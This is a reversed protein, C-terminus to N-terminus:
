PLPCCAWQRIPTASMIFLSGGSGQIANGVDRMMWNLLNCAGIWWLFAVDPAMLHPNHPHWDELKSKGVVIWCIWYKLIGLIRFVTPVRKYGIQGTLDSYIRYIHWSAPQYVYKPGLDPHKPGGHHDWYSINRYFDEQLQVICFM